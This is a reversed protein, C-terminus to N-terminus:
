IEGRLVLRAVALWREGALEGAVQSWEQMVQGDCYESFSPGIPAVHSRHADFLRRALAEVVPAAPAVDAVRVVDRKSCHPCLPPDVEQCDGLDFPLCEFCVWQKCCECGWAAEGCQCKGVVSLRPGFLRIHVAEIIAPLEPDRM